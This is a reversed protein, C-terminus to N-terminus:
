RTGEGTVGVTATSEQPPGAPATSEQPTSEQPTDAPASVSRAMPARRLLSAPLSYRYFTGVPDPIGDLIRDIEEPDDSGVLSAVAALAKGGGDRVRSTPGFCGSCPMNGGICQSGCGARTAPGLCVLGQALLCLEEDIDVLHPRKWESLSVTEPKTEKRDCEDCLAIDPALVSGAPPLDGSLLTGIAGAVIGPTPPCGPVVYDVETVQGLTRVTDYFGPLHVEFGDQDTEVAPVVGDPNITSPSRRYVTDIITAGDWQNALGPVGGMHACSGFALLLKSKRRLLRVMEEQETTRVAGNIFTALISGDDMAEVDVRKTDIAVPWFVVDVQEVVDLLGEALDVVAEECGGCSACWYFAVRPKASM